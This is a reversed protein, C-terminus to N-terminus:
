QCGDELEFFHDNINAKQEESLRELIWLAGKKSIGFGGYCASIVVKNMRFELYFFLLV